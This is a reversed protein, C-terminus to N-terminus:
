EDKKGELAHMYTQGELLVFFDDHKVQDISDIARNLDVLPQEISEDTLQFTGFHMGISKESGLDLHAQVAEEPNMHSYKMFWRPEYAGIPLFSLNMPGLRERIEKFHGGYGTDGAFYIRQDRYVIAYSGWLSRFRDNLWRGSWHQAPTFVIKLDENIKREQWWDMEEVRQSGFSAVHVRDGLPVLILPQDRAALRKLTGEDMHDYHNHSIIVVDIKPLEDWSLGPERVRKPGIWQFPSTRESWVPDTLINVGKVQILMTAHNVFTVAVTNPDLEEPLNPRALNVLSDPWDKRDGLFQWRLVDILSKDNNGGPNFFKEGDFHDSM